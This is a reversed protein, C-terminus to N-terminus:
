ILAVQGTISEAITEIIGLLVAAALGTFLASIFIAPMADSPPLLVSLIQAWIQLGTSFVKFTLHELGTFFGRVGANVSQLLSAIADEINTYSVAGAKLNQVFQAQFAAAHGARAQYAQAHQSFLQAIGVSVEDAAASAVGLTAPAAASHAADLASGITAVDAAAATMMEPVAIVYSM